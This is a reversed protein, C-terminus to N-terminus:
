QEKLNSHHISPTLSPGLSSCISQHMFLDDPLSSKYKSHTCLLFFVLACHGNLMMFVYQVDKGQPQLQLVNQQYNMM